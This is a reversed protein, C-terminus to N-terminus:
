RKGFGFFAGGPGRAGGAKSSEGNTTKGKKSEQLAIDLRKQFDAEEAALREDGTADIRMERLEWHAQAVEEDLDEWPEEQENIYFHKLCTAAEISEPVLKQRRWDLVSRASSFVREAEVSTIPIGLIDRAMRSAVPYQAEVKRWHAFVDWDDMNTDAQWRLIATLEEVAGQQSEDQGDKLFQGFSRKKKSPATDRATPSQQQSPNAARYKREYM